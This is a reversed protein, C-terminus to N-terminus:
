EESGSEEKKAFLGFGRKKKKSTEKDLFQKKQTIRAKILFGEKSLSSALIDESTKKFQTAFSSMSPILACDHQLEKLTRVPLLSMGLEDLGLNAIKTTDEAKVIELFFNDIGREENGYKRYFEKLEEATAEAEVLQKLESDM